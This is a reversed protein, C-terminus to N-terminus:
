MCKFFSINVSVLLLIIFIYKTCSCLGTLTTPVEPSSSLPIPLTRSIYISLFIQLLHLLVICIQLIQTTSMNGRVEM